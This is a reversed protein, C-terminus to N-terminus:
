PGDRLLARVICIKTEKCACAGELAVWKHSHVRSTHRGGAEIAIFHGRQEEVVACNGLAPSHPNRRDVSPVFKVFILWSSSHM